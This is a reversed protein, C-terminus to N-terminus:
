ELGDISYEQTIKLGPHQIVETINNIKYIQGGELSLDRVEKINQWGYLSTSWKQSIRTGVYSSNM